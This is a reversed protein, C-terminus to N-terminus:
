ERGKKYASLATEAAKARSEAEEARKTAEMLQLESERAQEFVTEVQQYLWFTVGSVLVALVTVAALTKNAKTWFTPRHQRVWAWGFLRRYVENRWQLRGDVRRMLGALRLRNHVLSADLCVVARGRLVAACVEFLESQHEAPTKLLYDAVFQFHADGRGRESLLEGAVLADVQAAQTAGQASLLACLKQTLFPQGGTWYLVRALLAEAGEGALGALLPRAEEASFDTVEVRQGINFPTRSADRILEAPTAVGLLVFSLREFEPGQARQNHLARILAFFDDTFDLSLTSDIEDVLVVIRGPVEPLLVETIYRWLRQALPLPTHADWWSFLDTQPMCASELETLVGLYWREATVMRYGITSLDIAAVTLGEEVLAEVTRAMLSSKGMQRSSLVYAFEGRRCLDLLEADCPRTIYSPADPPLTGGTVYRFPRVPANFLFSKLPSRLVENKGNPTGSLQQNIKHDPTVTHSKEPNQSTGKVPAGFRFKEFYIKNAYVLRDDVRRLLGSVILKNFLVSEGDFDISGKDEIARCIRKVEGEFSGLVKDVYRKIRFLHDYIDGEKSSLIQRITIDVQNGNIVGSTSLRACIEQTLYPQGGTWYLVRALVAEADEGALGALLPRAEVATFNTVEVRRGINFPTRNPDRILEAPTAVGLLVFSLREFEPGQARQNHLARILAFFDDTFGLSLTSDIEDVLVVIRGPVEPLLVETIYRWLRQALPLPTHAEWWSFLDTQPMCASELETLVGLYWQEATVAQSGITTLDIAAVTLGEEVLAVVTRAMLSSKGMQRSSLVYAFEGRRCLDLLEADCPRTIYSPADPPLTGGTVYRFAPTATTM